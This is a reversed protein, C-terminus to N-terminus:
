IVMFEDDERIRGDPMVRVMSLDGTKWYIENQKVELSYSTVEGDTLSMGHAWFVQNDKNVTGVYV